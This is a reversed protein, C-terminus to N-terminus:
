LTRHDQCWISQLLSLSRPDVEKNEWTLRLQDTNVLAEDVGDGAWREVVARSHENFFVSDFTAKSSREVLQAPLIDGFLDRMAAARSPWAARGRHRLLSGIVAPEMFPQVNSTQNLQAFATLTRGGAERGRDKWIDRRLQNSYWIHQSAVAKALERLFRRGVNPQLWPEGVIGDIVRPVRLALPQMRRALTVLDSRTPRLRGTLVLSLRDIEGFAFLEDGGVGSLYTGGRALRMGPILFHGNFPFYPGFRELLPTAIPGVVDMQHTIQIREWDTIGLHRIVSEQWEDEAADVDGPIVNTVAIPPALGHKTSVHAALALIASSDRGGSFSVVCPPTRLARMVILELVERPKPPHDELPLPACGSDRGFVIATALELGALVYPLQGVICSSGRCPRLELRTGREPLCSPDMPSSNLTVHRRTDLNM